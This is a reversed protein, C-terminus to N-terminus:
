EILEVIKVEVNLYNEIRVMLATNHNPCVWNATHKLQYCLTYNELNSYLSIVIKLITVLILVGIYMSWTIFQQIAYQHNLQHNINNHQEHSM